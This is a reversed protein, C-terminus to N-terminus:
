DAFLDFVATQDTVFELAAYIAGQRLLQNLNLCGLGFQFMMGACAALTVAKLTKKRM